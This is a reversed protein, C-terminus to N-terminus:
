GFFLRDAVILCLLMPLYIISAFFVKRAGVQSPARAMTVAKHAFWIGTLLAGGTYLWHAAGLPQLLVTTPVLLGAGIAMWRGTRAGSPDSAPLFDFGARLYDERYMWALAMFHPFQWLFLTSFLVWAPPALSGSVAAWGMLPPIAGPIAGVFVAIPGRRKLPTYILAYLGATLIALNATLLSTFAALEIWGLCFILAAFITAQAPSLLGAPLPRGRTRRMKQDLARELIMNSAGAGGSTLWLGLALHLLRVFDFSGGRASLAYGLVGTSAVLASLNPKTLAVLARLRSAASLALTPAVADEGPVEPNVDLASM